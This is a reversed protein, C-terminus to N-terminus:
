WLKLSDRKRSEKVYVRGSLSYIRRYEVKKLSKAHNLLYLIERSLFNNICQFKNDKESHKPKISMIVEKKEKNNFKVIM